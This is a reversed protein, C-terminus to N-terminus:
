RRTRHPPSGMDSDAGDIVEVNEFRIVWIFGGGSRWRDFSEFSFDGLGSSKPPVHGAEHLYAFGEGEYDEDPMDSLPEWTPNATLRIIAIRKGGFRPSKDWAQARQDERFRQAYADDWGRRTVNKRGATVAPAVYAFSIIQM